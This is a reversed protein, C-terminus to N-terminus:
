GDQLVVIVVVVVSLRRGQGVSSDIRLSLTSISLLSLHKRGKSIREQEQVIALACGNNLLSSPVWM